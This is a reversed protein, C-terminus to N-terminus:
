GVTHSTGGTGTTGGSRATPTSNVVARIQPLNLLAAAAQFQANPASARTFDSQASVFDNIYYDDIGRNWNDRLANTNVPQLSPPAIVESVFSRISQGTDDAKTNMDVLQGNANILPMGPENKPDNAAVQTPMLAHAVQDVSIPSSVSGTLEVGQETI